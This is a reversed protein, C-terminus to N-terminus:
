REFAFAPCGLNHAGPYCGQSLLGVYDRVEGRKMYSWHENNYIYVYSIMQDEVEKALSGFNTMKPSSNVGRWMKYSLTLSNDTCYQDIKQDGDQQSRLTDFIAKSASSPVKPALCSIDGLGLLEKIKTINSYNNVLMAGVGIPDGDWHCYIHNYKGNEIIGIYCSTSM